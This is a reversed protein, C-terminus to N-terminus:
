GLWDGLIEDIAEELENSKSEEKRAQQDAAINAIADDIVAAAFESATAPLDITDPLRRHLKAPQELLSAVRESAGNLWSGVRQFISSKAEREERVVVAPTRQTTAAVIASPVIAQAADLSQSTPSATTVAVFAFASAEGEAASGGGNLFNIVNLVDSPAMFGDGNVDLFANPPMYQSAAPLMEALEGAGHQNLANIILLADLPSVKGDNNVDRKNTANQYSVVGTGGGTDDGGGTDGGGDVALSAPPDFNGFVPLETKDGFEFSIDNGLPTPAFPKFIASPVAGSRDSILIRFEAPQVPVPQTQSPPASSFVGFDDIGDLNWDGAVPRETEGPLGFVVVDDRKGDRNVDFYWQNNLADFIALDDAGDGNFDGVIPRFFSALDVVTPPAVPNVPFQQRAAILAPIEPYTSQDLVIVTDNGDLQNNGNTDLIWRVEYRRTPRLSNPAPPDLRNSFSLLGIEDGSHAASFDGAVPKGPVQFEATPVSVFDAAGDHDFDLLFRFQPNIQGPQTAPTQGYVGIKDFGSANMTMTATNFNGTFYEDTPTGIHYIFDRNVAESNEPDFVGNSNADIQVAGATATGIEPRSDVTFRATFSTGPVGDGSAFQPAGQPETANSEGDLANGAPDQLADSITLTFRDDPLPAAFTLTITGSAPQGNAAAVPTFVISTIAIAGSNDGILSYHGANALLGSDFAAYLFNADVNSRAALDEVSLVLSNVAPTPGDMPDPNFLSFSNGQTNIDVATIRPGQTDVFINLSKPATVTGAPDEATVLLRRVGDQTFHQPDNLDVTSTLQWQGIPNQSTGSITATTTGILVDGADVAGNGNQDVYVRVLANAEAQGFFSPTTDSTVRDHFSAAVGTVGTDGDSPDLGDHAVAPDGFSVNPASTDVLIELSQSRAGFGTQQPTAPDIMQVRASLFHTGESLATPFTFTYLGNTATATAFGVPTQPATATQGPTAGEDFVAIRFGAQAATQFPVPIVQDFPTTAAANGPVDFRFLGDDLRLFITPTDDHTVNDTQSQGTDSNSGVPTDQLELDFPTPPAENIVTVSYNNIVDVTRGFIRLYYTQGDVVPIRVRENEAFADGDTNLENAGDNDGFSGNGAILTGDIDYVEIDLNGNGPLGPRTGISAVEEFLVQLDLTGTTVAEIRYWDADGPIDFGDGFPNVLGAPDITPDVNITENAGLLTATFRDENSEFPDHKFVVLRAANGSGANLAVGNEDVLQLREIGTFEHELPEANAPGITVRGESDVVGKRYITLDDEGDDVIILQDGIGASTGGAVSIQLSLGTDNFLQDALLVRILDDGGLADVRAQEVSGSILTDTETVGNVTHILQTDTPQRVDIIDRASTGAILITDFGNELVDNPDDGNITDNGTGGVFLDEGRGGELRDNGGLGFLQDDGDGGQLLQSSADGTLLDNGAGGRLNGFGTIKDNGQGGDIVVDDVNFSGSLDAVDITDDGGNGNFTLSDGNTLLSDPAAGTINIDYALGAVNISSGGSVSVVDATSRGNLTVADSENDNPGLGLNLVQLDTQSLDNIVFTDDGDLNTVSTGFAVSVNLDVQEVSAADVGESTNGSVRDLQLRTGNASLTFEDRVNGGTLQLVDLGDEGEVVDIGDGPNWVVLDSGAGGFVRDAGFGGLIVDNGDGGRLLDAGGMGFIQDDGAGGDITDPGSGGRLVDDGPGGLITYTGGSGNVNITDNGDGADIVKPLGSTLQDFIITDAGGFALVDVRDLGAGLTVSGGNMTIAATSDTVTNANEDGRIELVDFGGSGGAVTFATDALGNYTVLVGSSTFRGAGASSPTIQILDNGSTGTANLTEDGSGIATVRALSSAAGVENIAITEAGGDEHITLDEVGTLRIPGGVVGTITGTALDLATNVAARGTVTVVDGAVDSTGGEIWIGDAFLTSAAVTAADNGSLLRLTLAGLDAANVHVHGARQVDGLGSVSFADDGSGGAYILRDNDTSDADNLDLSGTTGLSVYEVTLWNDVQVSGADTDNGERHILTRAAGTAATVTLTEHDDEGDYILREIGNLVIANVGTLGAIALTGGDVGDPTFNTGDVGSTGTVTVVDGNTSPDGGAVTIAVTMLGNVDIDFDDDGNKGQLTLSAIDTYSVILGDNVQVNVDNADQGVATFQDDDGTGMVTVDLATTTTPDTVTVAEIKDFSVPEQSDVDFSGEDNQPGPTFTASTDANVTLKDGSGIPDGGDVFIPIAAPTVTITDGGERADVTLAEANTYDVRLLAAGDNVTVDDGDATITDVASTGVVILRDEGGAGLDVDLDTAASLEIRPDVANTEITASNAGTPTVTITESSTRGVLDFENSNADVDLLHIGSYTIDGGFGTVTSTTLALVINGSATDLDLTDDDAGGGQVDITTYLHGGSVNFNDDGGAGKLTLDELNTPNLTARGALLIDGGAQVTLGDDGSTGNLILVDTTAATGTLDITDGPGYGDFSIPVRSTLLTGADVAAGPLLEYRTSDTIALNTSTGEVVALNEIFGYTVTVAEAGMIRGIEDTAAFPGVAADANVDVTLLAAQTGNVTLQDGDTPDGGHVFIDTLGAPTTGHNLHIADAGGGAELTLTTKNAFEITEFNDVAVLGSVVSGVAATGSNTGLQYTIVNADNTGVVTLPGAVLDIVPELGTFRITQTASDETHDVQGDTVGPGVRYISNDIAGTGTYELHLLDDGSGGDFFIDDALVVLAPQTGAGENITLTDDGSEGRFTLGEVNTFDVGLRVAAEAILVETSVGNQSATFTDSGSSGIIRLEDTAGGGGNISLQTVLPTANLGRLSITPGGQQRTIMGTRATLSTFEITNNGGVLTVDITDDDATADSDGGHFTVSTVDTAAGYNAVAFVDANAFASNNDGNMTLAEVGTLTVDGGVIGALTTAGADDFDLTVATGDAKNATVADSSADSDSGEIRLGSAFLTSPQITASDNGTLLKLTLANLDAANVNVHGTLQVLGATTM